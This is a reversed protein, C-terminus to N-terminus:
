SKKAQTAIQEAPALESVEEESFFEPLEGFGAKIESKPIIMIISDRNLALFGVQYILRGHRSDTIKASTIPFFDRRRINVIDTLRSGPLIYMDGEIWYNPTCIVVRLKEKETIM